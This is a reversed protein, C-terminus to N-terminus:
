KRNQAECGPYHEDTLDDCYCRTLTYAFHLRMTSTGLMWNGNGYLLIKENNEQM